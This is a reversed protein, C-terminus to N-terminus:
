KQGKEITRCALHVSQEGDLQDDGKSEDEHEHLHEKFEIIRRPINREEILEVQFM